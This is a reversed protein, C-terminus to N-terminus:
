ILLRQVKNTKKEAGRGPNCTKRSRSYKKRDGHTYAPPVPGSLSAVTLARHHESFFGAKVSPSPIRSPSAAGAAGHFCTAAAAAGDKRPICGNGANAEALASNEALRATARAPIGPCAPHTILKLRLSPLVKGLNWCTGKTQLPLRCTPHESLPHAALHPRLACLLSGVELSQGSSSLAALRHSGEGMEM